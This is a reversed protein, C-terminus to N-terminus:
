RKFVFLRLVFYNVPASIAAAIFKGFFPPLGLVFSLKVVSTNIVYNFLMAAAYRAISSIHSMSNDFTWFKHLSFNYCAAASTSIFNAIILPLAPYVNVFLLYDILFTSLGVLLWRFMSWELHYLFKRKLSVLNM